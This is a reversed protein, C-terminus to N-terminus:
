IHRKLPQFFGHKRDKAHDDVITISWYNCDNGYMTGIPLLIVIIEMPVMVMVVM